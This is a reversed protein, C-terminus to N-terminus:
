LIGNVVERLDAPPRGVEGKKKKPKPLLQKLRKWSKDSLESPYKRKNTGQASM